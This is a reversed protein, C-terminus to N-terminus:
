NHIIKVTSFCQIYETINSIFISLRLKNELIFYIFGPTKLIKKQRLSFKEITVFHHCNQKATPSIKCFM